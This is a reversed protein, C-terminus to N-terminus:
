SKLPGWSGAPVKLAGRPSVHAGGGVSRRRRRRRRGTFAGASAWMPSRFNGNRTPRTSSSCGWPFSLMSTSHNKGPDDFRVPRAFSRGSMKVPHLGIPSRSTAGPSRHNGGTSVGADVTSAPFTSNSSSPQMGKSFKSLSWFSCPMSTDARDNERFGRPFWYLVCRRMCPLQAGNSGLCIM